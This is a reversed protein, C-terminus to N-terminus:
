KADEAQCSQRMANARCVNPFGPTVRKVTKVYKLETMEASWTGEFVEVVSNEGGRYSAELNGNIAATNPRHNIVFVTAQDGELWVDIGHLLFLGVSRDQM